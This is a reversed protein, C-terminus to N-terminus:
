LHLLIKKRMLSAFLIIMLGAIMFRAGSLMLRSATDDTAIGFLRYAIKIAPTASGWLVCCFLATAFAVATNSWLVQNKEKVIM